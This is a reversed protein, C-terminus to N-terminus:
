VYSLEKKTLAANLAGCVRSARRGSDDCAHGITVLADFERRSQMNVANSQGRSTGHRSARTRVRAAGSSARQSETRFEARRVLPVDTAVHRHVASLRTLPRTQAAAQVELRRGESERTMWVM